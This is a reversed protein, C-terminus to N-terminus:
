WQLDSTKLQVFTWLTKSIVPAIDAKKGFPSM